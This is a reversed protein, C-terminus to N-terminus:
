AKNPETGKDQSPDNGQAQTDSDVPEQYADISKNAKTSQDPSPEACHDSGSKTSQDPCTADKNDQPENPDSSPVKEETTQNQHELTLNPDLPKQYDLIFASQKARLMAVHIVCPVTVKYTPGGFDYITNFISYLWDVSKSLLYQIRTASQSLTGGLVNGLSVTVGMIKAISSSIVSTLLLMAKPSLQALDGKEFAKVVLAADDSQYQKVESVVLDRQEEDMKGYMDKMVYAILKRELEFINDDENFEIKMHKLVDSVVTYYDPGKGGRLLNILTHGGFARIEASIVHCYRSHNPYYRIFTEDKTLQESLTSAKIFQVLPALDENTAAQLVTDLDADFTYNTSM